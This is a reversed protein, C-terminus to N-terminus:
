GRIVNDNVHASFTVAEVDEVVVKSEWLIGIPRVLLQGRFLKRRGSGLYQV